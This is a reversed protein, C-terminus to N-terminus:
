ELGDEQLRAGFKKQVCLLRSFTWGNVLRTSMGGLCLDLVPKWCLGVAESFSTEAVSTTTNEALSEVTEIGDVLAAEVRASGLLGAHDARGTRLGQLPRWWFATVCSSVRVRWGSGQRSFSSGRRSVGQLTAAFFLAADLVGVLAAVIIEAHLLGYM